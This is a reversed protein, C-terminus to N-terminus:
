GLRRANDTRFARNDPDSLWRLMKKEDGWIGRQKLQLIIVNPISAVRRARMRNGRYSPDFDSRATKNGELIPLVHQTQFLEFRGTMPDRVFGSVSGRAPDAELFTKAM